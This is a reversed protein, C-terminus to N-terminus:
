RGYRRYEDQVWAIERIIEAREYRSRTEDEVGLACLERTLVDIAESQGRSRALHITRVRLRDDDPLDRVQWAYDRYVLRLEGGLQAQIEIESDLNGDPLLWEPEFLVSVSKPMTASHSVRRGYRGPDKRYEVIWARATEFSACPRATRSGSGRTFTLFCPFDDPTFPLDRWGYLDLKTKDQWTRVRVPLETASGRRVLAAGAALAATLGLTLGIGDMM